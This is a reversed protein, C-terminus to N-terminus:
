IADNMIMNSREAQPVCGLVAAGVEAGGVAVIIRGVSIGVEIGIVSVGEGM